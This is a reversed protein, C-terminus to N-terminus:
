ILCFSAAIHCSANQLHISPFDQMFSSQTYGQTQFHNTMTTGCEQVHSSPNPTAVLKHAYRPYFDASGDTNVQEEIISQEVTGPTTSVAAAIFLNGELTFPYLHRSTPLALGQM